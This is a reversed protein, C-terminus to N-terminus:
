PAPLQIDFWDRFGQRGRGTVTVARTGPRRRVWGLEHFRLFLSAGLGGGLHPRRGSWDLCSRVLRRRSTGLAEMDLGFGILAKEGKRTLGAPGNDDSLYGRGILAGALRVGVEGALHDYCVRAFRIAEDRPGPFRSRPAAGVALEELAELTEAVQASALRYWRLRGEREVAVLRAQVLKALHGSATNPAVGAVHALETATLARDDKMASLMNARAPDGSLAAVEAIYPIDLM